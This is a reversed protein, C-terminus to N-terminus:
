NFLRIWYERLSSLTNGRLHELSTYWTRQGVVGSTVSYQIHQVAMPSFIFMEGRTKLLRM